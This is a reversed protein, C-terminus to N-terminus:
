REHSQSNLELLFSSSFPFVFFFPTTVVVIKIKVSRHISEEQFAGRSRCLVEPDWDLLAIFSAVHSTLAPALPPPSELRSNRPLLWFLISDFDFDCNRKKSNKRKNNVPGPRSLLSAPRRRRRRRNAREREREVCLM